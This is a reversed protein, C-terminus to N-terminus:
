GAELDKEEWISIPAYLLKRKVASATRVTMYLLSGDPPYRKQTLDFTMRVTVPVLGCSRHALCVPCAGYLSVLGLPLHTQANRRIHHRQQPACAVVWHGSSL